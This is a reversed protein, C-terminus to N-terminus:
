VSLKESARQPSGQHDCALPEQAVAVLSPQAGPHATSQAAMASGADDGSIADKFGRM